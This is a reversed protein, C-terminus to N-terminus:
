NHAVIMLTVKPELGYDKKIEAPKFIFDLLKLSLPYGLMAFVIFFVSIIFTSLM